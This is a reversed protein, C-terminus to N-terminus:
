PSLSACFAISTVSFSNVFVIPLVQVQWTNAGVPGNFITSGTASPPSVRMGGGSLILILPYILNNFFDEESAVYNYFILVLYPYYKM